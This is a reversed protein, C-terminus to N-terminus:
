SAKRRKRVVANQIAIVKALTNPVAPIGFRDARGRTRATGYHWGNRKRNKATSSV